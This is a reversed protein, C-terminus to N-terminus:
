YGPLLWRCFHLIGLKIRNARHRIDKRFCWIPFSLRVCAGKYWRYKTFRHIPCFYIPGGNGVMMNKPFPVPMVGGVVGSYGSIQLLFVYWSSNGGAQDILTSIGWLAQSEKDCVIFRQKGGEDHQDRNMEGEWHGIMVLAYHSVLFVEM